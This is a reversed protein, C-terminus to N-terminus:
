TNINAAHKAEVFEMAAIVEDQFPIWEMVSQRKGIGNDYECKREGNV